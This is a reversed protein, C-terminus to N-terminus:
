PRFGLLRVWTVPHDEPTGDGQRSLRGVFVSVGQPLGSACWGPMEAQSVTGADGPALPTAVRDPLPQGIGWPGIERWEGGGTREWCADFAGWTNVVPLLIRLGAGHARRWDIAADPEAAIIRAAEFGPRLDRETRAIGQEGGVVVEGSFAEELAEGVWEFAGFRRQVRIWETSGDALRRGELVDAGPFRVGESPVNALWLVGASSGAGVLLLGFIRSGAGVTAARQIAACGVLGILAVLVGPLPLRHGGKELAPGTRIAWRPAEFADAQDLPRAPVGRAFVDWDDIREPGVMWARVERKEGALSEGFVLLPAFGDM